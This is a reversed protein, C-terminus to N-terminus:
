HDHSCAEVSGDDNHTHDHHHTYLALTGAAREGFLQVYAPDNIIHSPSGTCCVHGNLCVVTDTSAMVIHLDHSVMLIGCNKEDRIQNILTYIEIEGSFDVGQVPEDLVLLDPNRAIARAILLRQFEGGSMAHVPRNRHNSLGVLELAEDIAHKSSGTGVKMFRVANLPMNAGIALKQPVYGISLNPKRWVQGEHPKLVGCAMKVTTSKGSGNPGILTCIEGASISLDVSRVLWRQGSRFGAASLSLIPDSSQNM